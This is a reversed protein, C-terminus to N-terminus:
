SRCSILLRVEVACNLDDGQWTLLLAGVNEYDRGNRYHGAITKNFEFRAEEERRVFAAPNPPAEVHLDLELPAMRSPAHGIGQNPRESQPHCGGAM